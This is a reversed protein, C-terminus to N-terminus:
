EAGGRIARLHANTTGIPNQSLQREHAAAWVTLSRGLNSADSVGLRVTVVQPYEALKLAVQPFGADADWQVFAPPLLVLSGDRSEFLKNPTSPIALGLRETETMGQLKEGMTFLIRAFAIVRAGIARGVSRLERATAVRSSQTQQQTM